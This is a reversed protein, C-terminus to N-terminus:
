CRLDFKIKSNWACLLLWSHVHGVSIFLVLDGAVKVSTVENRVGKEWCKLIDTRQVGDRRWNQARAECTTSTCASSFTEWTSVLVSLQCPMVSDAEKRKDLADTVHGAVHRAQSNRGTLLRYLAARDGPLMWAAQMSHLATLHIMYRDQHTWSRNQGKSEKKQEWFCKYSQGWVTRLKAADKGENRERM